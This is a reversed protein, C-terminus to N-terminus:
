GGGCLQVENDYFNYYLSPDVLSHLNYMIRDGVNYSDMVKGLNGFVPKITILYYPVQSWDIRMIM